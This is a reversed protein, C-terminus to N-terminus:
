TSRLAIDFSTATGVTNGRPLARWFAPAATSFAYKVDSLLQLFGIRREILGLELYVEEREAEISSHKMNYIEERRRWMETDSMMSVKANVRVYSM